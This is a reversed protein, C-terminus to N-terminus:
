NGCFKASVYLENIEFQQWFKMYSSRVTRSNYAFTQFKTPFRGLLFAFKRLLFKFKLPMICNSNKHARIMDILLKQM